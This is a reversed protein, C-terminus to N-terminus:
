GAAISFIGLTGGTTTAPLTVSAVTKGSTIPVTAAFVYTSIQQEGGSSDRYPLTAVAVNGFNVSGGGGGLTWDTLGLTGTSSTGDTYNITVTGYAGTSAANTASGLVGLKTAGAPSTIPITQGSAQLSDPKDAAVNPWPYSIGGSTVTAGPALGAKTLLQESYSWGDGDYDATTSTDNDNSIGATDFFPVLDGPKDVIVSLPASVISGATSTLKFSVAYNGDTSGGTVTVKATGTGNAGVAITGSTPSVTVGSPATATWKVTQAKGTLSKVSLTASGSGGPALVLSSPSVSATGAFTPGYSPPADKAASGWTTAKTGLKWNLTSGKSLTGFPVSLKSYAKGNLKLSDVYYKSPSAGPANITITKGSATTISAHPFGPSAFVMTDSGPNEPFMGLMSWIYSSSNAGLDDNNPLGAPGPEYLGNRLTNVAQQTGAPDGAYDLAFQEGEDFENTLQAYMGFGNPESLYQKLAPVVKSDGGLLSFLGAYNNPVDWLYEYADGEIYHSTTTPGVGNVFSGNTLRPTLLGTSGDFVNVWNNARKQLMAADTKDGLSAAFESLAFDANDYELLSSVQGHPNCCGYTGNEPLYGYQQELAEGPRVENVSTANKVLDALATKTDFNTVGFAHADSIIATSPDGAMVWNDQNLYGWQQLVGNQAYYNLLSQAQDGGDKPDLISQLQTLSHYIDWGSYIGYQNKQKGSVVHVKNDAGMYQGNVDSTINPQIFDKYLLSYFEQTSAYTGGSVKIKGLLTNWSSQAATKVKAFNWGPNDSRWNLGADADSVYSIGVKAQVTAAKTTNFTLAVAGPSKADAVVKSSTFPHDFVIDFHVTYLQNSEGCFDGTTESGQVENTGVVKATTDTAPNQSDMLKILLDAQTTKPFTFRSMASHPTEAFQSTIADPLNSQASYYGAQAVEGANTFSTTTSNLAGSDTSPLAGTMPLIPIDGAAGCGPGSIHDLSYGTLAEDGYNYGGGANRNPSTDPSWQVMGYPVDAGPFTNGGGSTWTRTDVLQSLNKTNPTLAANNKAGAPMKAPTLPPRCSILRGDPGKVCTVGHSTIATTGPSPSPKPAGSASAVGGSLVGAAVLAVATSWRTLHSTSNRRM